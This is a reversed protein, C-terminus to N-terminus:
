EFRLDDIYVTGQGAGGPFCDGEFAVVVNALQNLALPFVDLPIVAEQWETTVGGAPLYRVIPDSKLSDDLQEWHKDALGIMFNEGGTEGRVWLRLTTYSSADFYTEGRKLRLYYGCWGGKNYPGGEGKKDYKVMLSRGSEGRRQSESTIAMARSPEKQYTGGKGSMQIAPSDFTEITVPEATAPSAVSWLCMVLSPLLCFASPLYSFWWGCEKTNQKRSEAEQKRNIM